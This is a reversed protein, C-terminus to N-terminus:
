DVLTEALELANAKFSDGQGFAASAWRNAEDGRTRKEHDTWYTFTQVANYLTDPAFNAGPSNGPEALRLLEKVTNESATSLNDRDIKCRKWTAGDGGGKFFHQDAKKAEATAQGVLKLFFRERFDDSMQVSQFKRMTEMYRDFGADIAGLEAKIKAEDFKRSHPVKVQTNKDRESFRLTNNCVVRVTTFRAVTAMTGDYSDALLIYPKTIDDGINGVNDKRSALCWVKKGEFLSGLTEIQFGGFDCIDNFFEVIQKPQRVEYKSESMQSLYGGTDSRVLMKRNPAEMMVPEPQKKRGVKPPQFSYLSPLELISWDLGAAKRMADPTMGDSLTAGMGHWPLEGRYAMNARGNSMDLEHAM